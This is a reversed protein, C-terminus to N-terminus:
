PLVAGEPVIASEPRGPWGHLACLKDMGRLFVEKVRGPAHPSVLRRHERCHLFLATEVRVDQTVYAKLEEWKGDKWLGPADAGDGSKEITLNARAITQLNWGKAFKTGLAYRVDALVDYSKALIREQVKDPCRMGVRMSTAWLLPYDFDLINFGSIVDAELMLEAISPIGDEGFITHRDDWSTYACGYSVGQAEFNRWGVEAPNERCELDFVLFKM